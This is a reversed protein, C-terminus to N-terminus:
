EESLGFHVSYPPEGNIKFNEITEQGEKSTIWIMFARAERLKVSEIKAPNIVSVGFRLLLRPDDAVVVRLQRRNGLRLWTARDTLTYANRAAALGLTTRMDAETVTYWANTSASPIMGAEDWFGLEARHTGSNDGRSVFPAEARSLYRLADIVSVMGAIGAPDSQPGVILLEAYMVDRREVVLENQVLQQETAYDDLLLVDGQGARALRVSEEANRAIVNVKIGSSKEFVPLLHAMLGVADLTEAVLLTIEKQEEETDQGRAPIMSGFLVAASVFLVLAPRLM